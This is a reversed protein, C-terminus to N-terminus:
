PGQINFMLDDSYRYTELQVESWKIFVDYLYAVEYRHEFVFQAENKKDVKEFGNPDSHDALVYLNFRNIYPKLAPNFTDDLIMKKAERLRNLIRIWMESSIHNACLYYRKYFDPYIDNIFPLIFTASEEEIKLISINEANRCLDEDYVIHFLIESGYYGFGSYRIDFVQKRQWKTIKVSEAIRQAPNPYANMMETFRMRTHIDDKETESCGSMWRCAQDAGMRHLQQTHPIGNVVFGIRDPHKKYGELVYTITYQMGAITYCEDECILEEDSRLNQSLCEYFKENRKEFSVKPDKRITVVYAAGKETEDSFSDIRRVSWLPKMEKLIVQHIKQQRNRLKIYANDVLDMYFSRKTEADYMVLNKEAAIAYIKPLVQAAKAYSTAIFIYEKKDFGEPPFKVIPHCKCKKTVPDTLENKIQRVVANADFSNMFVAADNDKWQKESNSCIAANVMGLAPASGAAAPSSYLFIKYLM